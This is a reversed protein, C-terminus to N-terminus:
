LDGQPVLRVGVGRDADQKGWAAALEGARYAQRVALYLTDRTELGLDFRRIESDHGNRRKGDVSGGVCKRYRPRSGSRNGKEQFSHSVTAM